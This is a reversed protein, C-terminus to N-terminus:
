IHTIHTCICVCVSATNLLDGLETRDHQQILSTVATIEELAEAKLLSSWLSQGQGRLMCADQFLNRGAAKQPIM